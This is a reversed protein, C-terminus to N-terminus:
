YFDCSYMCVGDIFGGIDQMQWVILYQVGDVCEFWGDIQMLCVEVLVCYQCDVICWWVVVNVMGCEDEFM